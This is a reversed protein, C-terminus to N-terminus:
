SLVIQAHRQAPIPLEWVPAGLDAPIRFCLPPLGSRVGLREAFGFAITPFRPPPFASHPIDLAPHPIFAAWFRRMEVDGPSLRIGGLLIELREVRM